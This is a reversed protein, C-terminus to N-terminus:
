RGQQAKSYQPTKPFYIGSSGGDIDAIYRDSSLGFEARHPWLLPFEPQALRNVRKRGSRYNVGLGLDTLLTIRDQWEPAFPVEGRSGSAANAPARGNACQWTDPSFRRVFALADIRWDAVTFRDGHWASSDAACRSQPLNSSRSTLRRKPPSADGGGSKKKCM